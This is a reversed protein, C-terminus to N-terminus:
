AGFSLLIEWLLRSVPLSLFPYSDLFIHWFGVTKGGIYKKDLFFAKYLIVATSVKNQKRKAKQLVPFFVMVFILYCLIIIVFLVTTTKFLHKAREFCCSTFCHFIAGKRDGDQTRETSVEVCVHVQDQVNSAILKPLSQDSM